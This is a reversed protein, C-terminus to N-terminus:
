FLDVHCSNCLNSLFMTTKVRDARNKMMSAYQKDEILEADTLEVIAEFEEIADLDERQFNEAASIRRVQLDSAQVVQAPVAKIGTYDRIAQM